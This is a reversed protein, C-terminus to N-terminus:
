LNKSATSKLKEFKRANYNIFMWRSLSLKLQMDMRCWCVKENTSLFNHPFFSFSWIDCRKLVLDSRDFQLAHMFQRKRKRKIKKGYFLPHQLTWWNQRRRHNMRFFYMYLSQILTPRNYTLRMFHYVYEKGILRECTSTAVGHISVCHYKRLKSDIIKWWYQFM